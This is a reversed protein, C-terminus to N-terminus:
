EIDGEIRDHEEKIAADLDAKMKALRDFTSQPAVPCGQHWSRLSPLHFGFEHASLLYDEWRIVEDEKIGNDVIYIIDEMTLNHTDGYHYITGPEDSNWYGYCLSLDWQTLLEDRYANCADRYAERLQELKQKKKTMIDKIEEYELTM